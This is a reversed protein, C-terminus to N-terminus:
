CADAVPGALESLWSVAPSVLICSGAFASTDACANCAMAAFLSVQVLVAQHPFLSPLVSLMASVGLGLMGLRSVGATGVSDHFKEFGAAPAFATNARQNCNVQCM